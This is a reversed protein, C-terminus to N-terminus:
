QCYKELASNAFKTGLELAKRFDSCGSEKEKIIIKIEGRLYYGYGDKPDLEIVKNFDAISGTYDMINKKAKGRFTYLDIDNPNIKIAISFDNIAGSFDQLNSKACGRFFYTNLLPHPDNEVVLTFDKIANLYDKIEYKAMGRYYYAMSHKPNIKILKTFDEIAGLYNKEDMKINGREFYIDVSDSNNNINDTKDFNEPNGKNGTDIDRLLSPTDNITVNLGSALKCKFFSTGDPYEISFRYDTNSYKALVVNSFSGKSVEIYSSLLVKSDSKPGYNIMPYVVTGMDGSFSISGRDIIITANEDSTKWATIKNSSEKSATAIVMFKQAYSMTGILIILLLTTIRKVM